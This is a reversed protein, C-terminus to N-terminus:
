EAMERAHEPNASDRVAVTGDPQRMESKMETISMELTAVGAADVDKIAWKRVLSLNTRSESTVPKETKEDLTTEQVVTQQAVRYTLTQGPQRKFRLSPTTPPQAVSVGLVLGAVLFTVAFRRSM